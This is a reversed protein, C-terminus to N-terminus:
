RTFIPRNVGEKSVYVMEEDDESLGEKAQLFGSLRVDMLDIHHLVVAEEMRPSRASGWEYDGHHALIIHSLKMALEKPFGGIEDIKERVIRECLVTHGIMRSETTLDISAETIYEDVKGFDHVIAATLLLDKDLEPYLEVAHRAMNVDNLVHELLGGIFDNNYSKSYPSKKLREVFEEDELFSSLLRRMDENKVEESIDKLESLMVDLDNKSRSMYDEIDYEDEDLKSLSHFEEKNIYIQIDGKYISVAGKVDIVDSVKISDYIADIEDKDAGGWYVLTVDGTRDGVRIKFFWGKSYERVPEKDRIAFQEEIDEGEILNEVFREKM